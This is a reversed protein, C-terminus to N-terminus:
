APAVALTAAPTPAPALTKIPPKLFEIAKCGILISPCFPNFIAAPTAARASCKSVELFGLTEPSCALQDPLVPAHELGSRLAFRSRLRPTAAGGRPKMM